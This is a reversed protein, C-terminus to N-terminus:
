KEKAKKLEEVQKNLESIRLNLAEIDARSIPTTQRQEREAKREEEFKHRRERVESVLKRADKEAIEGNEVLREVFHDMEEQALVAAGVAALLVKRSIEYFASRRKDEPKEEEVTKPM